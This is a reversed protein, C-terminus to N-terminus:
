RKEVGSQPQILHRGAESGDPSGSQSDRGGAENASRRRRIEKGLTKQLIGAPENEGLLNAFTPASGYGAIEYDVKQRHRYIGADLV